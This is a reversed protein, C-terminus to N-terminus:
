LMFGLNTAFLFFGLNAFFVSLRTVCAWASCFAGAPGDQGRRFV